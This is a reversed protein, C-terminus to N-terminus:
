WCIERAPHTVVSLEIGSRERANNEVVHGTPTSAVSSPRTTASRSPLWFRSPGTGQNGTGAEDGEGGGEGRTRDDSRSTDRRLLPHTRAPADPSPRLLVWPQYSYNLDLIQRTCSEKTERVRLWERKHRRSARLSKPSSGPAIAALMGLTRTSSREKLRMVPVIGIAQHPAPPKRRSSSSSRPLLSNPPSPHGM